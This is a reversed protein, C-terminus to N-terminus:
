IKWIKKASFFHSYVSITLIKWLIMLSFVPIVRQRWIRGPEWFLRWLWEFGTNQVFVPARKKVGSLYDFAGGVGIFVGVNLKKRNRQIWIEQRGMGYAVFLIGVRGIRDLKRKLRLDSGITPDGPGAYLVTLGPNKQKQRNAVMAAVDGFGGLFGITVANEASRECLKEILDFGTLRNQARGGLVRRLFAIWWGDALVVDSSSLIEAFNPDRRALMIFESNVTAVMHGGRKDKALKLIASVAQNTSFDDVGVGFINFKRRKSAM